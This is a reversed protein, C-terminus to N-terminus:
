RSRSRKWMVPANRGHRCRSSCHSHPCSSARVFFQVRLRGAPEGDDASRRGDMRCTENRAYAGGNSLSENAPLYRGLMFLTQSGKQAPCVSAGACTSLLESGTTFPTEPIVKSAPAWQLGNCPRVACHLPVKKKKTKIFFFQFIIKCFFILDM